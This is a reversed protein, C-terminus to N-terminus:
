DKDDEDDLWPDDATRGRDVISQLATRPLMRRQLLKMRSAATTAVDAVQGSGADHTNAPPESAQAPLISKDANTRDAVPLSDSDRM